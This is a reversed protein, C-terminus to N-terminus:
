QVKEYKLAVLLTLLAHVPKNNLKTTTKKYEAAKKIAELNPTEFVSKSFFKVVLTGDASDTITAIIEIMRNLGLCTISTYATAVPLSHLLRTRMVITFKHACGSCSMVISARKEGDLIIWGGGSAISDSALAVM